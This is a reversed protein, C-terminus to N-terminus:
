IGLIRKANGGLIRIKDAESLPLQRIRRLDKDVVRVRLFGIRIVPRVIRIRRYHCVPIM